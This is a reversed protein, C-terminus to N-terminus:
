NTKVNLVGKQACLWFFTALIVENVRHNGYIEMMRRNDDEDNFRIIPGRVDRSTKSFIQPYKKPNYNPLISPLSEKDIGAIFNENDPDYFMACYQCWVTFVELEDEAQIAKSLSAKLEGFKKKDFSM